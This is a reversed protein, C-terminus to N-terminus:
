FKLGAKRMGDALAKVRGHFLYGNRDFKIKDINEKKAIEGFKKGLEFSQEVKKKSKDIKIDKTNTSLSLLTKSNVDDILQASINKLSRYVSLRPAEKTGFIKKRISYKRKRRNYIKKQESRKKKM